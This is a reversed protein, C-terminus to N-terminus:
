NAVTKSTSHKSVPRLNATLANEFAFKLLVDFATSLKIFSIFIM